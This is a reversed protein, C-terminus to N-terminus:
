NCFMLYKILIRILKLKINSKNKELLDLRYFVDKNKLIFDRMSIFAKIIKISVEIAKGSKIVSSLMAVGQETFVYPLNGGLHKKSPIANQSVMFDVEKKNLKFCFDDPFRLKNRNVQEKLRRAKINFFEAIDRDLMVQKGRITHIKNKVLEESIILDRTM